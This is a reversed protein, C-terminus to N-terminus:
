IQLDSFSYEKIFKSILEFRNGFNYLLVYLKVFNNLIM